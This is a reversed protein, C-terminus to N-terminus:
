ASRWAGAAANRPPSSSRPVARPVLRPFRRPRRARRRRAAVAPTAPQRLGDPWSRWNAGTGSPWRTSPPSTASGEDLDDVAAAGAPGYPHLLELAAGKAAWVADYDVLEGDAPRLADVERGRGADAGGRLRRHRRGAPLAPQLFRRSSPSYPSAEVRPALAVAHMPNVLLARRGGRRGRARCRPSTPATAAHGVLGARGCRTCSRCGVGPRRYPPTLAARRWSSRSTRGAPAPWGTTASPFTPRCGREGGRAGRRGRADRRGAGPLPLDQGGDVVLTPPLATPTRGRVADLGDRARRPSSADVELAQLVDIVVDRDLEVERESSDRYRVAIGHRLPSSRSIPSSPCRHVGQTLHPPSRLIDPSAPRPSSPRPRRRRRGGIRRGHGPRRVRSLATM